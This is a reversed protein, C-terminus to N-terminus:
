TSASPAISDAIAGLAKLSEIQFSTLGQIGTINMGEYPRDLKATKWCDHSTIDWIKLTEDEGSSYLYRGSRAFALALIQNEHGKLEAICEGTTPVWLRIISDHCGTALLNGQPHWAIASVVGPHELIRVCDVANAQVQWLKLTNDYSGSALLNGLPSWALRWVWHDHGPLVHACDWTEPQWIYINFDGVAAALWQGKPHWRVSLVWSTPETLTRLPQPQDPHWLNVTGDVSGSALLDQSPHWDVSWVWNTHGRLVNLCRQSSRQWLRLTRDHSASAFREGDSSWSIDSILHNHGNVHTFHTSLHPQWFRLITDDCGLVLTEDDPALAIARMNALHGCCSRLCHGSVTDWLRLSGDHGGSAILAQEPHWRAYWVWNQHGQLVRLCYGTTAEWLRITSDNSASAVVQGDPSWDVSWITNTHGKLMQMTHNLSNNELHWLVLTGNELACALIPKTPSWAAWRVPINEFNQVQQCSGGPIQWLKVTGDSSSSALTGSVSRWSLSNVIDTHGAIVHVDTSDFPQWIRITGDISGIALTNSDIWVIARGITPAVSLEAQLEGTLLNCIKVTQDESCTAVCHGDPHPRIDWIYSTHLRITKAPRFQMSDWLRLIGVSDGTILYSGDLSYSLAFISGFTQKFATQSFYAQAFNVRQFLRHQLNAQRITLHSFDFDTLNIDLANSLNILNGAGYGIPNTHRVTTLLTQLQQTQAAVTPFRDCIVKVVPMLLLRVQSKTIFDRVTNKILAYCHWQCLTTSVAEQSLTEVLQETVYEMVVPQQTYRQQQREILGRWRLSELAELLRAKPAIPLIDEALESIETWDRNIALWNMVAQELESLRQLQEALLRRVSNFIVADEALFVGIEGDFLDQITTAVIKLALPNYSYRDCLERRQAATGSLGKAEILALATTVSGSLQLTRTYGDMGELAAIEAPKERSTFLICSQHATEGILRLLEGYDDYGDRYYGAQEGAQLITEVNDLVILCRRDRMWHLLRSLDATTEQQDSLISILEALVTSLDPANRLSRWIVHTFACASTSDDAHDVLQQVVRTALTSKGIGGMGLVAILRCNEAEIWRRLIAQEDDRGYFQSVDPAEGWSTTLSPSHPAIRSAHPSLDTEISTSLSKTSTSLTKTSTSLSTPDPPTPEPLANRSIAAKFNKKNVPEGLAQSLAKWFKPGADTTLYNVSYGAEDAIQPYTKGQWAGEFILTEIDSLQRGLQAQMATNVIIIAEDQEM